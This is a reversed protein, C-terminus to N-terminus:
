IFVVRNEQGLKSLCLHLIVPLQEREFEEPTTHVHTLIEIQEFKRLTSVSSALKQATLLKLSFISEIRGRSQYSESTEIENKISM